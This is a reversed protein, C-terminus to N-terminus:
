GPKRAVLLVNVFTRGRAPAPRENRHDVADFVRLGLRVLSDGARPGRSLVAGRGSTSVLGRALLSKGLGYVLHHAFPVASHTAAAVREVTLGAEEVCARLQQPWYLRVHGTGIGVLGGDALLPAGIARRLRGIPDWAFPFDAHPVSVALRGGPRLVRRLERLAAVDDRIHELVETCLIKDFSADAFPLRELAARVLTAALDGRRAWALAAADVDVGTARVRRLAEILRLEFGM